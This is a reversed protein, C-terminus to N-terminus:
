DGGLAVPEVDLVRGDGAQHLADAFFAEAGHVLGGQGLHELADALGSAGLGVVAVTLRVLIAGGVLLLRAVEGAGQPDGGAREEAGGDGTDPATAWVTEVASLASRTRGLAAM